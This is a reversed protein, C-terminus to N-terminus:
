QISEAPPLPGRIRELLKRAIPAAVDSGHGGGEVCVAFAVEPDSAPAYGIFWSHPNGHPNESTGTKAAPMYGQVRAVRGTGEDDTVVLEMARRIHELTRKPLEWERVTAAIEEPPEGEREITRVLRPSLLYGGNGLAAAHRAMQLPTVLYEGQGIILNLLTGQTWKRQGYREDLWASDPVNGALEQPLDIGTKEGLGLERAWAALDDATTREAIQYFYVDCSHILAGELDLVGHGAPEWCRFTRNGFRYSGFCPTDLRQRLGAIRNELTLAFSIMKFTSGPAYTAQVARNLLPLQPDGNLREWDRGSIGASFLNPDFSPASALALVGGTRADLVCAAGRRGVLLSEAAAQLGADLWLRLNAGPVPAVADRGVFEGIVRGM